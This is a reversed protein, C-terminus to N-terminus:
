MEAWIFRRKSDQSLDNLVNDLIKHVQLDYYGQFTELWGPDCHSHPIVHVRLLAQVCVALLAVVYVVVM